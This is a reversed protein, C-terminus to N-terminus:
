DAADGPASADPAPAPEIPEGEPLPPQSTVARQSVFQPGGFASGVRPGCPDYQIEAVPPTYDLCPSCYRCGVAALLCLAGACLARKM